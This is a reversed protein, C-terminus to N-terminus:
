LDGDTVCGLACTPAEVLCALQELQEVLLVFMAADDDGEEEDGCGGRVCQSFAGMGACLQTPDTPLATV